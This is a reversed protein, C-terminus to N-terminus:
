HRCNNGIHGGILLGFNLITSFRHTTNEDARLARHFHKNESALMMSEVHVCVPSMIVARGAGAAVVSPRDANGNSGGRTEPNFCKWITRSAPFYNTDPTGLFAKLTICM